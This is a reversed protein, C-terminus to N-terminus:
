FINWAMRWKSCIKKLRKSIPQFPSKENYNKRQIVKKKKSKKWEEIWSAESAMKKWQVNWDPKFTKPRAFGLMEQLQVVNYVLPPWLTLSAEQGHLQCWPNPCSSSHLVLLSMGPGEIKSPVLLILLTARTSCSWLIMESEGIKMQQRCQFHLPHAFKELCKIKVSAFHEPFTSSDTPCIWLSQISKFRCTNIWWGRARTM